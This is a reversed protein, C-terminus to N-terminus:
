WDTIRTQQFSDYYSRRYAKGGSEKWPVNDKIHANTQTNKRYVRTGEREMRRWRCRQGEKWKVARPSTLIEGCSSCRVIHLIKFLIPIDQEKNM